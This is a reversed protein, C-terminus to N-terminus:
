GTQVQLPRTPKMARGKTVISRRCFIGPCAAPSPESNQPRLVRRAGVRSFQQTIRQWRRILRLNGPKVSYNDASVTIKANLLEAKPHVSQAYQYKGSTSQTILTYRPKPAALHTQTHTIPAHSSHTFCSKSFEVQSYLNGWTAKNDTCDTWVRVRSKSSVFLGWLSPVRQLVSLCTMSYRFNCWPCDPHESIYSYLIWSSPSFSWPDVFLGFLMLSVRM